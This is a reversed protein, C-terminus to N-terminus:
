EKSNKKSAWFPDLSNLPDLDTVDKIEDKVSVTPKNEEVPINTNLENLKRKFKELITIMLCRRCFKLFSNIVKRILM